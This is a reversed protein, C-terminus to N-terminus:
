DKPPLGLRARITPDNGSYGKEKELQQIEEETYVKKVDENPQPKKETNELKEQPAAKVDNSSNEEVKTPETSTQPNTNSQNSPIENTTTAQTKVDCDDCSIGKIFFGLATFMSVIAVVIWFVKVVPGVLSDTFSGGGLDTSLDNIFEKGRSQRVKFTAYLCVFGSLGAILLEITKTM